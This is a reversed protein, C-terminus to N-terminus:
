DADAVDALAILTPTDTKLACLVEAQGRLDIGGSRALRRGGGPSVLREGRPLSGLILSTVRM